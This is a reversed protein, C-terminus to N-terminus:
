LEGIISSPVVGHRNAAAQALFSACELAASAVAEVGHRGLIAARAAPPSVAAHVVDGILAGREPDPGTVVLHHVLAAAVDGESRDFDELLRALLSLSGVVVVDAPFALVAALRRDAAEREGFWCAEVWESFAGIFSDSLPEAVEPDFLCAM